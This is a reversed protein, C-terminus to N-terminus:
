SKALAEWDVLKVIESFGGWWMPILVGVYIATSTAIAESFGGWWM